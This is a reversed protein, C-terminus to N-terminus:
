MFGGGGGLLHLHIFFFHSYFRFGLGWALIRSIAGTGGGRMYENYLDILEPSKNFKTIRHLILYLILM